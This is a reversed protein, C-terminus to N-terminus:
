PWMGLEDALGLADGRTGLQREDVLQQEVGDLSAYSLASRRYALHLPVPGISVPLGSYVTLHGDDVGVYYVFSMLVAASLAVLVVVVLVAVLWFLGRSARPAPRAAPAPEAERATTDDSPAVTDSALPAAQVQTVAEHAEEAADEDELRLVVATINDPGGQKRAEQILHRAAEAPDPRALHRRLEEEDVVGCLGDTCLLLVDGARLDVAFEDVQASPETGLARSLISRHPHVAAEQPTLRGERVMEGVLSHDDTLQSLREDRLLYARSDGIHAFRAEDAGLLLATLTTGMGSQEANRSARAFVASNAAEAAEGLSRGAAVERALTEAALGSAVEGAQAGGMGDCVAYLPPRVVYTDENTKRHLGIDSLAAHRAVFSV